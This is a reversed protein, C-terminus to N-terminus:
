QVYYNNFLVKLQDKTTDAAIFINDDMSDFVMDLYEATILADSTIADATVGTAADIQQYSYEAEVFDYVHVDSLIDHLATYQEATLDADVVKKVINNRFKDFYSKDKLQQGDVCESLRLIVHKPVDTIPIFKYTNNVDLIYVGHTEATEGFTLELPSGVFIIATARYRHETRLHIHGSFCLGGPKLKKAFTRIDNLATTVYEANDTINGVVRNFRIASGAVTLHGFICDYEIDGADYDSYGWPVALCAKNNLYFETIDHVIHVNDIDAFTYLPSIVSYADTEIDHNGAIIIVNHKMALLKILQYGITLTTSHIYERTNFWDGLFIINSIQETDAIRLISEIVQISLNLRSPADSKIGVHLDSFVLTKGTLKLM